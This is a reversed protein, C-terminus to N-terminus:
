GIGQLLLPMAHALPRDVGQELGEIVAQLGVPFRLLPGLMGVPVRLKFVDVSLHFVKLLPPPRDDGDIGFLFLRYAIVAIGALLPLSPLLRTPNARVIEGVLLL